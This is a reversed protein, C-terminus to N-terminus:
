GALRTAKQYYKIYVVAPRPIDVHGSDVLRLEPGLYARFELDLELIVPV